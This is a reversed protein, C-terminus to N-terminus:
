LSSMYTVEDLSSILDGDDDYENYELIAGCYRVILSRLNGGLSYNKCIMSGDDRTRITRAISHNNEYYWTLENGDRVKKAKNSRDFKKQSIQEGNKNIKKNDISWIKETGVKRGNDYFSEKCIRKITFYIRTKYDAFVGEVKCEAIKYRRYVGHQTTNPLINYEYLKNGMRISIPISYLNKLEKSNDQFVKSIRKCTLSFNLGDKAKLNRLINLAIIDIKLIDSIDM